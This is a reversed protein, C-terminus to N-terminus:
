RAARRTHNATRHHRRHKKHRKKRHPKHPTPKPNGPGSFNSTGPGPGNAPSTGPGRCGDGSCSPPTVPRQSALGGLARTDYIDVSQDNDQPVLPDRAYIFVDDGNASVDGLSSGASGTGSSLLYLCGNDQASYASSVQTCSGAGSAEWEYVDMCALQYNGVDLCGHDRNIDAAVLKDETEFFVRSGDTSLNRSLFSGSENPLPGSFQGKLRPESVPPAGTPNCTVCTPSGGPHYLYFETKGANDYTTLRNSSAFLLTQGDGAVRATPQASLAGGNKEPRWNGDFGTDARGGTLPAVFNTEFQGPHDPDPQSLYLNCTMDPGLTEPWDKCNGVKAPGAGDLDGNAVFYVDEGSDSVGVVGQVQAGCPTLTGPCVDASDHDVTLDTLEGSATDYSYLDPGETGEDCRGSSPDSVATSDETLKECSSFFVKSGSPTASLFIAPKHGNPDAPAGPAPASVRATTPSATTLGQRVYIQGTGGATFVAVDGTNSIAHRDQTLYGVEAGGRGLGTANEGGGAGFWDFSGAFSGGPPTSGDPLVGVLSLTETDRDYLYLNDKSAAAEPTLGEGSANAEFFLKSDDASAGAFFYRIASASSPPLLAAFSGAASNREVLTSLSPEGFAIAESFTYALDPTWGIITNNNGFSLPPLLNHTNWTGGERRALYVPFTGIGNDGTLLPTESSYTVGDGALAAQTGYFTAAPESGSKSVPTVQEYARCDPLRASTGGSRFQDNPCAEFSPPSAYTTFTRDPSHSTADANTAVIRFHYVTAPALGSVAQSVAVGTSGSGASAEPLPKSACPNADCPGQDGYEFHFTTAKGLPNVQASFTASVDTVLKAIPATLQPGPTTLTVISGHAEGTANAAVLRVHYTTGAELTPTASVAVNGSGSGPDGDCPAQSAGAFGSAKFEADTAYDFRCETVQQTEPDVEGHLTAVYPGIDGAPETTVTALEQPIDPGFVKVQKIPNDSLYVDGSDGVAIGAAGQQDDSRAFEALLNGARDYERVEYLGNGSFASTVQGLEDVPLRPVMYVNGSAPDTALADVSADYIKTADTYGSAASYRWVGENPGPPAASGSSGVYLNDDVDIAIRYPGGAPSQASVDVSQVYAGASSFELIKETTANSVWIHGASDVALGVFDTGQLPLAASPDIPFNGGLPNGAADFGAIKDSIGPTSTIVSCGSGGSLNAGDCTLQPVDLDRLGNSFGVSYPNSGTANGPGSFAFVNNGLAPLKQLATKVTTASIDAISFGEANYPINTTCQNAQPGGGDPDFCLRFTGATASVTVRQQEPQGATAYYLNGASATASNDIAFPANSGVLQTDVPTQLPFPAGLPTPTLPNTADFGEVQPSSNQRYAFLQHTSQRFALNLLDGFSGDAFNANTFFSNATGDSGFSGLGQHIVPFGSPVFSQDAGHLVGSLSGTVTLRFHYLGGPTLFGLGASVDAPSNFSNGQACPITGGTYSTTTGWDFHCDTVTETGPDLHGHLVASTHHLTDAPTTVATAPAALAQAPALIAGAAFVVYSSM